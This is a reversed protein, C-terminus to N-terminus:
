MIHMNKRRVIVLRILLFNQSFNPHLNARLRRERSTLRQQFNGFNLEQIEFYFVRCLLEPWINKVRANM